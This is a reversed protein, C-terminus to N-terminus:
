SQKVLGLNQLATIVDDVTRGAGTALVAQTIPATGYFGVTTGDHNLAGDIEVEGTVILGDDTKLTNAAGRYLNTDAGSGFILGGAGDIREAGTVILDGLADLEGAVVLADDTKLVNAANRYLNTDGGWELTDTRMQETTYNINNRLRTTSTILGGDGVLISMPYTADVINGFVQTSAVGVGAGEGCLRISYAATSWGDIWNGAIVGDEAEQVLCGPDASSDSTYNTFRNGELRFGLVPYTATGLIGCAHKTSTTSYCNRITLNKVQGQSATYPSPAAAAVFHYGYWMGSVYCDEVVCDQAGFDSAIGWNASTAAVTNIVHIDRLVSRVMLTNDFGTGAPDYIRIHEFTGDVHNGGGISDYGEREDTIIVDRILPSEVPTTDTDLSGIFIGFGEPSTIRVREIVAHDVGQMTIGNAYSAQSRSTHDVTLDRIAIHSYHPADKVVRFGDGDGGTPSGGCSIVTAEMGAGQVSINSDSFTLATTTLYTGPPLYVVGGGADGAADIAAQIASTDDTVGDGTASFAKVDVHFNHLMAHSPANRPSDATPMAM